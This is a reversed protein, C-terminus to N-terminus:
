RSSTSISIRRGFPRSPVRSVHPRAAHRWGGMREDRHSSWPQALMAQPEGGDDQQEDQRMNRPQVAAEAARQDALHADRRHKRERVAQQESLRTQKREAMGHIEAQSAKRRDVQHPRDVGAQSQRHRQDRERTGGGAQEESHQEARNGRATGADYERQNRQAHPLQDEGSCPHQASQGAALLTEGGVAGGARVHEPEIERRLQLDIVDDHEPRHDRRPEHIRERARRYSAHAVGDPVIRLAGREDTVVRFASRNM